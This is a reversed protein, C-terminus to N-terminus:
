EIIKELHVLKGNVDFGELVIKLRHSIDSNFFRLRIGPSNESTYLEPNWYITTRNDPASRDSSPISYDPSYFEKEVAYGKYMIHDLKEMGAPAVPTKNKTYVAIAGGPGDTGGAGVFGADYFKIMAVDDMTITKLSNAFVPSENLFIAVIYKKGPANENRLREMEAGGGYPSNEMATIKEQKEKEQKQTMPASISFNKRNVFNEDEVAVQAISRKIFDFVSLARNNEPENINDFNVKGMATFVGKTYKENVM